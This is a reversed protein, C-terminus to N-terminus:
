GNMGPSTYLSTRAASANGAPHRRKRLHFLLCGEVVIPAVGAAKEVDAVVGGLRSEDSAHPAEFAVVLHLEGVPVRLAPCLVAHRPPRPRLSRSWRRGASPRPAHACM